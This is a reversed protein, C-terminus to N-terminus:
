LNLQQVGIVWFRLLLVLGWDDLGLFYLVEICLAPNVGGFVCFV